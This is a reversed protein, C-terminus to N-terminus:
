VQGVLKHLLKLFQTSEAKTLVSMMRNQSRQVAPEIKRLVKSGESSIQLLKVRKDEKSAARLVLKKAVLRELVSGLTSRDFAIVTALRTADIGPHESIAVLCAYQVPTLDFEKCQDMFSAVSIQQARRILYGPRKYVRDM